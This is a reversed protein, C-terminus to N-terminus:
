AAFLFRWGLGRSGRCPPCVPGTKKMADRALCALSAKEKEVVPVSDTAESSEPKLHSHVFTNGRKPGEGRSTSGGDKVSDGLETPVREM